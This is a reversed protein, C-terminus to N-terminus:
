FSSFICTANAASSASNRSSNRPAICASASPGLLPLPVCVGFSYFHLSPKLMQVRSRSFIECRQQHKRPRRSMSLSTAFSQGHFTQTVTRCRTCCNICVRVCDSWLIIHSRIAAPLHLQDAYEIDRSYPRGDAREVSPVAARWNCDFGDVVGMEADTLEFDVVAINGAIRAPTVSKPICCVGRQLQWRLIVQATTKSHHAAIAAIAPDDLLGDGISTWSPGGLPSYATLVVGHEACKSRLPSQACYPHCEVQNVAPKITAPAHCLQELQAENMNSVGISRCLGLAVLKEMALWTELPTIEPAYLLEGDTGRPFLVEGVDQVVNQFAYPWHMLYMDVYDLGLIALSRHCAPEVDAAAHHSNFLKTTVFLEERRITGEGFVERLAAGISAEVGYVYATDIHRYGCAIAEKVAAKVEESVPSPEGSALAEGAAQAAAAGAATGLGFLPMTHGDNLTATLMAPPLPARAASTAYRTRAARM